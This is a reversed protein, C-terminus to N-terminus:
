VKFWNSGDSLYSRIDYGTSISDTAAGDITQGGTTSITVTNSSNTTIKVVIKSGVYQVASPLTLPLPGSSNDVLITKNHELISSTNVLQLRESRISSWNVGDFRYIDNRTKDYALVDGSGFTAPRIIKWATNDVTRQIIDNPQLGTIVGWGTHLSGISTNTRIIYRVGSQETPLGTGPAEIAGDDVVKIVNWVGTNAIFSLVDGNEDKISLNDTESSVYLTARDVPPTGPEPNKVLRIISM